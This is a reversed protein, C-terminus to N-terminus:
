PTKKEEEKGGFMARRLINNEEIFQALTGKAIGTRNSSRLLEEVAEDGAVIQQTGLRELHALQGQKSLWKGKETDRMAEPLDSITRPLILVEERKSGAERPLRKVFEKAVIFRQLNPKPKNEGQEIDYPYVEFRITGNKCLRESKVFGHKYGETFQRRATMDIIPANPSIDIKSTGKNIKISVFTTIGVLIVGFIVSFVPLIYGM